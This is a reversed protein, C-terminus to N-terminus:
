VDRKYKSFNLKWVKVGCFRDGEPCIPHIKEIARVGCPPLLKEVGIIKMDLLKSVQNYVVDYIEEQANFCLRMQAKHHFSTWDSREVIEILHSNPLSYIAESFGIKKKQDRFFLYTKKMSDLYINLAEPVSNLIKPIYFDEEFSNELLPRIAPSKRHRQNQADASLSLKIYSSFGGIIGDDFVMQSNRMIGAHNENVEFDLDGVVDFVLGKERYKEISNKSFIPKQKKAFDILPKLNQDVELLNKELIEAFEKAEDKIEPLSLSVSIYRLITLINVTHYLYAETGQPLIYRAVEQAKKIADKKRFKPLVERIPNELLEILKRYEYFRESYFDEWENKKGSKPYHMNELLVKAYRQSVQESNHVIFGDAVFNHHENNMEIDYTDESGISEILIIKDNVARQTGKKGKLKQSSIKLPYYNEKNKCKNHPSVGITWSGLPKQLDFKNVWNRITHKSVNAIEGIKEQSLNQKKYHNELWDRDQYVPIGNVKVFDDEQLNDLTTFEGNPLMFRHEKTSKIEYGLRTKVKFLEKKGSFIVAKIKGKVIIGNKDVSRINRNLVYQRKEPNSYQKYLEKITKSSNSANSFNTIVTDGSLCNYISHSHLVRWILHRSMGSILMTIHTHQLTTHHGSKFISDLLYPKRKWESSEEPSIIGKSSYCTRASSVAIDTPSPSSIFDIKLTNM